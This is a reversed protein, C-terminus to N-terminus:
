MIEVEYVPVRVKKGTSSIYWGEDVKKPKGIAGVLQLLDAITNHKKETSIGHQNPEVMYPSWSGCYVKSFIITKM